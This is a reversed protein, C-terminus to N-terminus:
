FLRWRRKRNSSKHLWSVTVQTEAVLKNDNLNRLQYNISKNSVFDIAIHASENNQWCKLHKDLGEQYLCLTQKHQSEWHINVEAFCDRGQRLTVCQEPLARLQIDVQVKTNTTNKGDTNKQETAHIPVNIFYCLLISVVKGLKSYM